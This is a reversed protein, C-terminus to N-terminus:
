KKSWFAVNYISSIHLGNKLFITTASTKYTKYLIITNTNSMPTSKAWTIGRTYFDKWKQIENFQITKVVCHLISKWKSVLYINQGYRFSKTVRSYNGSAYENVIPYQIETFNPKFYKWKWKWLIKKQFQLCAQTYIIRTKMKVFISLIKGDQDDICM